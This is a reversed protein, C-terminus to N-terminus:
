DVSDIEQGEFIEHPGIYRCSNQSTTSLFTQYCNANTLCEPLAGLVAPLLVLGHILSWSVVLIITKVFVM